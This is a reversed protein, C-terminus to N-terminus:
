FSPLDDPKRASIESGIEDSIFSILILVRDNTM